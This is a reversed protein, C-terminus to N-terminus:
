MKNSSNEQQLLEALAQLNEVDRVSTAKSLSRSATAGGRGAHAPIPGAVRRVCLIM